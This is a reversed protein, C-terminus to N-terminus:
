LTAPPDSPVMKLEIHVGMGKIKHLTELEEDSLSINRKYRKRGPGAGMGGLNLYDFEVGGELLALMAKPGRTILLVRRSDDVKDIFDQITDEVTLVRLKINPPKTMTLVSQLLSDTAAKDDSILIEDCQGITGMWATVIQGHILRDDIRALAIDM